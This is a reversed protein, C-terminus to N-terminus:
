LRRSRTRRQRNTEKGKGMGGREKMNKKRDIMPAFGQVRAQAAVRALTSAPYPKYVFMRTPSLNQLPDHALIGRLLEPFIM